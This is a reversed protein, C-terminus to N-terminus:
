SGPCWFERFGSRARAAWRISRRGCPRVGWGRFGCGLFCSLCSAMSTSVLFNPSCIVIPSSMTRVTMSPGLPSDADANICGAAHLDGAGLHDGRDSSFVTGGGVGRCHPLPGQQGGQARQRFRRRPTLVESLATQRTPRKPGFPPDALHLSPWGPSPVVTRRTDREWTPM